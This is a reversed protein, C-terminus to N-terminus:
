SKLQNECPHIRFCHFEFHQPVWIKLVGMAHAVRQAEDFIHLHISQYAGPHAGACKLQKILGADLYELCAIGCDPFGDCMEGAAREGFHGDLPCAALVRTVSATHPNQVLDNIPGLYFGVTDPPCLPDVQVPRVSKIEKPM